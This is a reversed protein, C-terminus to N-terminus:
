PAADTAPPSMPRTPHLLAFTPHLPPPTEGPLALLRARRMGCRHRGRLGGPGCCLVLPLWAHEPTTARTRHAVANVDGRRRRAQTYRDLGPTPWAPHKGLASFDFREAFEDLDLESDGEGDWDAYTTHTVGDPYWLNPERRWESEDIKKNATPMGSDFSATPGQSNLAGELDRQGSAARLQSSALWGNVDCM